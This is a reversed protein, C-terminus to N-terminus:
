STAVMDSNPLKPQKSYDILTPFDNLKDGVFDYARGNPQSKYMDTFHTLKKFKNKTVRWMSDSVYRQDAVDLISAVIMTFRTPEIIEHIGSGNINNLDSILCDTHRLIYDIAEKLVKAQEESLLEARLGHSMNLANKVQRMIEQARELKIEFNILLDRENAGMALLTTVTTDVNSQIDKLQIM